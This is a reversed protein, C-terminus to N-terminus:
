TENKVGQGLNIILYGLSCLAAVQTDALGVESARTLAAIVTKIGDQYVEYENGDYGGKYDLCGTAIALADKFTLCTDSITRTSSATQKQLETKILNDDLEIEIKM